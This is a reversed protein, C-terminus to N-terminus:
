KQKRAEELLQDNINISFNGTAISFIFILFLLFISYYKM